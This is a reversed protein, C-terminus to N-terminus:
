NGTKKDEKNEAIIQAQNEKRSARSLQFELMIHM